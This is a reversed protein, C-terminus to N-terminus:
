SFARETFTGNAGVSGIAAAAAHGAGGLAQALASAIRSRSSITLKMGAEYADMKLSDELAQLQYPALEAKYATSAASSISMAARNLGSYADALAKATKAQVEANLLPSQEYDAIIQGIVALVQTYLNDWAKILEATYVFTKEVQTIFMKANEEAQQELVKAAEDALKSGMKLRIDAIDGIASGPPLPFRKAAYENLVALEALRRETDAAARNATLIADAGTITPVALSTNPDETPLIGAMIEEVKAIAAAANNAIGNKMTQADELVGNLYGEVEAILDPLGSLDVEPINADFDTQSVVYLKDLMSRLELIIARLNVESTAAMGQVNRMLTVAQDTIPFAAM